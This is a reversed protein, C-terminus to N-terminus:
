MVNSSFLFEFLFENLFLQAIQIRFTHLIHLISSISSLSLSFSFFRNLKSGNSFLTYESSAAAAATSLSRTKPSAAAPTPWRGDPTLLMENTQPTPGAAAAAAGAKQDPM